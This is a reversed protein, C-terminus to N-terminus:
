GPKSTQVIRGFKRQRSQYDEIAELLKDESFDPWLTDTIWFEAYASQWLLFNSIRKEGSTRIILDPDPIQFTYLYKRFLDQNIDDKKIKNNQYLELIKKVARTIEQRGGYNIALNLNLKKNKSSRKIAERLTGEVKAPLESLEGLVRLRIENEIINKLESEIFDHLLSMLFNVEEKPRGWNEYSFVFLTLYKIGLQNVVFEVIRKATKVGEQHGFFRKRGQKLAWRGNGDMIIAVHEPLGKEKIERVKTSLNM